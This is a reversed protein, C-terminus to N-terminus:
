ENEDAEEDDHLELHHEPDSVVSNWAKRAVDGEESAWGEFSDWDCSVHWVNLIDQLTMGEWLSESQFDCWDMLRQTEERLLKGADTQRFMPNQGDTYPDFAM